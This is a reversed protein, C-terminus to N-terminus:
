QSHPLADEHGARLRTRGAAEDEFRVHHVFCKSHAPVRTEWYGVREKLVDMLRACRRHFRRTPVRQSSSAASRKRITSISARSCRAHDAIDKLSSPAQAFEVAVLTRTNYIHLPDM